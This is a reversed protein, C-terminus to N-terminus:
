YSRFNVFHEDYPKPVKRSSRSNGNHYPEYNKFFEIENLVNQLDGQVNVDVFKWNIDGFKIDLYRYEYNEPYLAYSISRAIEDNFIKNFDIILTEIDDYLETCSKKDSSFNDDLDSLKKIENLKNILNNRFIRRGGIVATGWDGVSVNKVVKIQQPDKITKNSIDVSDLYKKIGYLILCSNTIGDDGSNGGPSDAPTGGNDDSDCDSDTDCEGNEWQCM